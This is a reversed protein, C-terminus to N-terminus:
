EIREGIIWVSAWRDNTPDNAGDIDATVKIRSPTGGENYKVAVKASNGSSGHESSIAITAQANLVKKTKAFNITQSYEMAQTLRVTQWEMILGNPLEISGVNNKNRDPELIEVKAFNNAEYNSIQKAIEERTEGKNYVELFKDNIDKRTYYDEHAKIPFDGEIVSPIKSRVYIYTKKNFTHILQEDDNTTPYEFTQGDKLVQHIYYQGKEIAGSPLKREPKWYLYEGDKLQQPIIFTKKNTIYPEYTTADDEELQIKTVIDSLKKGHNDGYNALYLVIYKSNLGTAFSQEIRGSQFTSMEFYGYLGEKGHVPKSDFSVIGLRFLEKNEQKDTLIASFTYKTSPKCYVIFTAFKEGSEEMFRYVPRGTQEDKKLYCYNVEEKLSILNKGRTEVDIKYTNSQGSVNAGVGKTKYFYEPTLRNRYDGALIMIKSATYTVNFVEGQGMALKPIFPVIEIKTIEKGSKPSIFGRVVNELSIDEYHESISYDAKNPTRSTVKVKVVADGVIHSHEVNLLISYSETPLPAVGDKAEFITIINSPDTFLKNEFKYSFREIVTSFNTMTRGLIRLGKVYGNATDDVDIEEGEGTWGIKKHNWNVQGHLSYDAIQKSSWTAGDHVHDVLQVGGPEGKPGTFGRPGVDGKSGKPGAPGTPGPEGAPGQAGTEGAPGRAGTPGTMGQPGREGKDGKDGKPGRLQNIHDQTIESSWKVAGTCGRPGELGQPGQPGPAGDRGDRGPDGKEGRPGRDGKPGRCGEIGQLGQPGQKGEPGAPGRLGQPGQVGQPGREGQVEIYDVDPPCSKYESM